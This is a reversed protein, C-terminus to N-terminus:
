NVDRVCCKGNEDRYGIIDNRNLGEDESAAQLRGAAQPSESVCAPTEAPNLRHCKNHIYLLVPEHCIWFKFLVYLRSKAAPFKYVRFLATEQEFTPPFAM